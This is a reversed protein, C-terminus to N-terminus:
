RAPSNNDGGGNGFQGQQQQSYYMQTAYSPPPSPPSAASRGVTGVDSTAGGVISNSSNSNNNHQHLPGLSSHHFQHQHQPMSAGPAYAPPPPVAGVAALPPVRLGVSSGGVSPSFLSSAGPNQMQLQHSMFGLSSFSAQQQALQQQQQQIQQQQQQLAAIALAIANNASNNNNNNLPGGGLGLPTGNWHQAHFFMPATLTSNFAALQLQQQLQLAQLTAADFPAGAATGASSTLGSGDFGGLFPPAMTPVPAGGFGGGVNATSPPTSGRDYAATSHQQTPNLYPYPSLTRSSDQQAMQQTRPPTVNGRPHVGYMANGFNTNTAPATPFANHGLLSLYQDTESMTPHLGNNNNNYYAQNSPHRPHDGRGADRAAKRNRIQEKFQEIKYESTLDDAMNQEPTRLEKVGHAFMCRGRYPCTGENEMNTCLKTKFRAVLTLDTELSPVKKVKPPKINRLPPISNDSSGVSNTATALPNSATVDEVALPGGGGGGSEITLPHNLPQFSGQYSANTQMSAGAGHVQKDDFSGVVSMSGHTSSDHIVHAVYPAFVTTQEPENAGDDNNNPTTSGSTSRASPHYM